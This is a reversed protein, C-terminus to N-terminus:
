SSHKLVLSAIAFVIIVSGLLRIQWRAAPPYTELARREEFYAEEAGEKLESLRTKSRREKWQPFILFLSGAAILLLEFMDQLSADTAFKAVDTEWGCHSM